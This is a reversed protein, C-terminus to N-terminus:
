ERSPSRDGEAIAAAVAEPREEPVWHSVGPLHRVEIKEVFRRAADALPARLAPDADGWLLTTPVAIRRTAAARDPYPRRLLQRYGELVAEARGPRAFADRYFALDAPEFAGRPASHSMMWALPRAGTREILRELLPVQFLAIYWLRPLQLPHLLERITGPHPANAVVLHRLDGPREAALLWALGGGWDHGVLVVRSDGDSSGPPPLRDSRPGGARGALAEAYRARAWEVTVRLDGVLTEVDYRGSRAMASSGYGRLDPAIVRYREKLLPMVRRWAYSIQPAGHLLVVPRGGRPGGVVLRLRTGDVGGIEVNEFGYPRPWDRVLDDPSSM